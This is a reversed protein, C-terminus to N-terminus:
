APAPPVPECLLSLPEMSLSQRRGDLETRGGETGEKPETGGPAAGRQAPRTIARSPKGLAQSVGRSGLVLDGLLNTPM